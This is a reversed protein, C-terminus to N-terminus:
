KSAANMQQVADEVFNRVVEKVAEKVANKVTAEVEATNLELGGNTGNLDRVTSELVESVPGMGSAVAKAVRKAVKGASATEPAPPEQEPVGIVTEPKVAWDERFTKAIREVVTPDRVIMGVERRYDLELSRLSQSGVFAQKGDRIITRTHLRFHLRKALLGATRGGLKGIIQVDVGEKAKAGLLRVMGPDSVEPDYVQLEKKAGNIFATLQARANVPSVLFSNSGATYAERKVDAEFLKVAEAVLKKDRTIIGFSRSREIDLSTFNFAMLHLEKRDIVMMKGHYRVLDDATRAVTVGAALLRLELARLSKDGGKNTFATLAQVRVGRQVAAELAKEVERRDFRFILLEVSDKATQIAKIVPAIGDGPQVLCKVSSRGV